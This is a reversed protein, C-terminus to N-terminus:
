RKGSVDELVGDLVTDLVDDLTEPSGSFNEPLGALEAGSDAGFIKELGRAEADVRDVARDARKLQIVVRRQAGEGKSFTQVLDDHELALHIIRRQYASLPRTSHSRRSTKVKKALALALERLREDQRERYKGTDLQHRLSAGLNRAIIRGAIYQVAALTQGERGLLLGPSEGCDISVRVRNGAITATSSMEGVIPCSLRTVTDTVLELLAAQDCNRLDFEPLDGRATGGGEPADEALFDSSPLDEAGGPSFGRQREVPPRGEEGRTWTDESLHPSAEPRRLGKGRGGPRESANQGARGRRDPTQGGAPSIGASDPLNRSSVEAGAPISVAEPGVAMLDSLSVRAARISAKKGGMLGFIGPTADNIIEIELRERDVGFYACAECIAEDITKGQFEKWNNM